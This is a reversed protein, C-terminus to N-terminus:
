DEEGAESVPTMSSRSAADLHRRRWYAGSSCTLGFRVRVPSSRAERMTSPRSWASAWYKWTAWRPLGPLAAAAARRAEPSRHAAWRSSSEAREAFAPTRAPADVRTRREAQTAKGHRGLTVRASARVVQPPASGQRRDPSNMRDPRRAWPERSQRWDGLWPRYGCRCPRAGPRGQAPEAGFAGARRARWAAKASRPWTRVSGPAPEGAAM